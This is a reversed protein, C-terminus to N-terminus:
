RHVYKINGDYDSLASLASVLLTVHPGSHRIHSAGGNQTDVIMKIRTYKSRCELKLDEFIIRM